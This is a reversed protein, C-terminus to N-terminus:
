RKMLGCEKHLDGNFCGTSKCDTAWGICHAHCADAPMPRTPGGKRSSGIGLRMCKSVCGDYVQSCTRAAQAVTVVSINSPIASLLFIVIAAAVIAPSNM